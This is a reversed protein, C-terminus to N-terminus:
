KEIRLGPLAEKLEAIGSETVRTGSLKLAKLSALQKLQALGSDTVTTGDLALERLSTLRGVHLLGDDTTRTASLDLSNLRTLAGLCQLGANSVGTGSLDLRQLSTMTGLHAVGRDGIHMADFRLHKIQNFGPTYIDKTALGLRLDNLNTLLALQSVGADTIKTESLDLTELKKLGNLNVLGGDGVSTESLILYKLNTLPTLHPLGVDTVRTGSLNLEELSTLWKLGVLQEDGFGGGPIQAVIAQDFVAMREDGLLERLWEPGSECDFYGGLREIEQIAAHQRYIPVGFRLGVGVVVLTVTALGIWLPRPLRISSRHSEPSTPSPESAPMGVLKGSARPV